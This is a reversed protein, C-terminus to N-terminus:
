LCHISDLLQAELLHPVLSIHAAVTCQVLLHQTVTSPLVAVRIGHRMLYSESRRLQVHHGAVRDLVLLVMALAAPM